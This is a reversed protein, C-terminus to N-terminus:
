SSLNTTKKHPSLSISQTHIHTDKQSKGVENTNTKKTNNHNAEDNVKIKRRRRSSSATPQPETWHHSRVTPTGCIVTAVLRYPVLRSSVCCILNSPHANRREHSCWLFGDLLFAGAFPPHEASNANKPTASLPINWRCCCGSSDPQVLVWSDAFLICPGYQEHLRYAAPNEFPGCDREPLHM